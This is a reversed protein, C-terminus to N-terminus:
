DIVPRPGMPFSTSKRVSEKLFTKAYGVRLVQTPLEYGQQLNGQQTKLRPRVVNLEGHRRDDTAEDVMRPKRFISIARDPIWARM